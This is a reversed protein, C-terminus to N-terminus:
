ARAGRANGGRQPRQNQYAYPNAQFGGGTLGLGQGGGEDPPMQMNSGQSAYAPPGMQAGNGGYTYNGTPPVANAAPANAKGVAQGAQGGAAAGVPGGFYAGAATGAASIMGTKMAADAAEQGNITQIQGGLNAQQGGMHTNYNAMDRQTKASGVGHVIDAMRQQNNYTRDSVGGREGRFSQDRGLQRDAAQEYDGVSNRYRDQADLGQGYAKDSRAYGQEMGQDQLDQVRKQSRAYAAGTQSQNAGMMAALQGGTMPGAGQLQGAMNQMGLAQLTGTNALSAKNENQAQQSYLARTKSAVANNPDMADQLSMAGASNTKAQEMMNKLQPQIQNTYTAGSDKQSAEIESRLTNLDHQYGDTNVRSVDQFKDDQAGLQKNYEQNKGYQEEEKQQMQQALGKAKEDKHSHAADMAGGFDGAALRGMVTNKRNKGIIGSQIQSGLSLQGSGKALGQIGNDFYGGM